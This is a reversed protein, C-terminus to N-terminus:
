PAGIQLVSPLFPQRSGPPALYPALPSPCRYACADTFLHLRANSFWQDDYFFSRGNWDSLFSLWWELDKFFRKPLRIHHSRHSGKSLLGVMRCLFTRGPRCVSCIFNLQGILSQLQRKTCSVKAQLMQLLNLIEDLRYQSIRAEQTVSNLEIGLLELTTCDKCSKFQLRSRCLYRAHYRLNNPLPPRPCPPRM